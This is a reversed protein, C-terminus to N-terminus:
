EHPALQALLEDFRPDHRIPDWTPDLKLEGYTIGGPTKVSIALQQFALDPEETRAYVIALNTMLLPGSMADKAIPLIEVARRAEQIAEQKRGLAADILGLASLLLTDELHLEVKRHLQERAVGFGAEMTPRDGKVLALWAEVCGRPVLGWGDCLYFEGNLSTGLAEKASTWDRALVAANFRQSAINVDDNM